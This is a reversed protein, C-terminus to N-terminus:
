QIVINVGCDGVASPPAIQEAFDPSRCLTASFSGADFFMGGSYARTGDTSYTPNQFSVTASSSGNAVINYNDPLIYKADITIGLRQLSEQDNSGQFFQGREFHYQQQGRNIAGLATQFEVERAKGIQKLFSPLAVAVLVGMIIMVVLLEILTFGKVNTLKKKRISNLTLWYNFYNKM